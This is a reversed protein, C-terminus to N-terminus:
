KKLPTVTGDADIRLAYLQMSPDQLLALARGDGGVMRIAIAEFGGETPTDFVLQDPLGHLTDPSGVRLRLADDDRQWLMAMTDGMSGLAIHTGGRDQPLADTLEQRCREGDCRWRTLQGMRVRSLETEVGHCQMDPVGTILGLDITKVATPAAQLPFRVLTYHRDDLGNAFLVRLEGPAKCRAIPRSRPPLAALEPLAPAKKKRKKEAERLSLGRMVDRGTEKETWYVHDGVLLTRAHVPVAKLRRSRPRKGAALEVWRHHKVRGRPGDTDATVIRILGGEANAQAGFYRTGFLLGGTAGDYFGPDPGDEARLLSVAGDTVSLRVRGAAAKPPLPASHCTVTTWTEDLQCLELGEGDRLLIRGSRRQPDLWLGVEALSGTRGIPTLNSGELKPRPVEPPPPVDGAGPSALPLEAQDLKQVLVVLDDHHDQPADVIPRAAPLDGFRAHVSPQVRAQDFADALPRCRAPWADADDQHRQQLRTLRIREAPTVSRDRRPGLMCTRLGLWSDAVAQEAQQELHRDTLEWGAGGLLGMALLSSLWVGGNRLRTVNAAVPPPESPRPADPEPRSM